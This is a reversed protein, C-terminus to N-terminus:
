ARWIKPMRTKFEILRSFNMLFSSNCKFNSEKDAEVVGPASSHRYKLENENCEKSMHAHLHYAYACLVSTHSRSHLSALSGLSQRTGPTLRGPSTTARHFPRKSNALLLCGAHLCSATSFTSSSSSPFVLRDRSPSVRTGGPVMTTAAWATAWRDVDM